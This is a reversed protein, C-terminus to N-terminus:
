KKAFGKFAWISGRCIGMGIVSFIIAFITSDIENNSSRAFVYTAVMIIASVVWSTRSLGVIINSEVLKM